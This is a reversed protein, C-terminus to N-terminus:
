FRYNMSISAFRGIAGSQHLSPNYPTGVGNSSANVGTGGYTVADVPPQKDFLNTVSLRWTWSKSARYQLSMNTTVFAKVKCYQSPPNDLAQFQNNNSSIATTCDFQGNSPDTVDYGSIYNTTSAITFPGKDYVLTFQGRGKPNGTDGSIISPGHTGALKYKVGDTTQDYNLMQTYQIGATLKGYDGLNFQYRTEVEFGSTETVQGNVYPTNVFQITGVSSTGTSGDGFTVTQPTGRVIYLLPDFAALAAAPIIQNSVSIKYYDVTTSWGKIPEFILGLTYSKSKEPQLNKNTGQLYAPGFSCFAPVNTPATLDPKGNVLTPCLQPDRIQNFGFLSGAVGNETASPARFGRSATGRLSFQPVPTFKFGVKPTTSNGYTDYHDLRIAGDVELSKLVPAVFEFYAASNKEKGFAYAGSVPQTGNQNEVPDPANLDKTVYSVGVGIRLPGGSLKFLERSARAELFDLEDTAKNHVRPAVFNMVDRSNGGSLLFRKAPNPDNLAAYLNGPNLSNEFTQKTEVKTYGASGSVEWGGVAGTLEAVLRFSDSEVNDVRGSGPTLLARINAPVGLTNGPYNAPVTYAPIAGVIQPIIGAGTTTAGAYSGFPITSSPRVQQSQSDFVSGKINFEWNNPLQATFSALVNVNQSKPQLQAWTNDYTCQSSRMMAHTCGPYFAFNNPNGSSTGPAQLYASLLRPSNVFANRAGPSLNEGGQSSWDFNTWPGSRQNLRIEDQSRYEIAVYGSKNDNTSGFGRMMSVHNTMGGGHQTTGVEASVSTGEFSKRLIVNVVGAIADSGYVASAGDKLIEIREVADFPISSIDVFPREGDDSLPYPSMRHGDILVLTAGVTLGRLSVGSAGAAFAQNFGQNLTGQGNATIDRLADSLTTYGSNLLDASTIVQVPSPTEKETRPIQSGTVVIRDITAPTQASASNVLVTALVGFSIAQGVAVSLKKMKMHM